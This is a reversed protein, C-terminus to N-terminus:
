VDWDENVMKHLRELRKQLEYHNELLKAALEAPHPLKEMDARSPNKATLDYERKVLEKADEFWSKETSEPQSAKGKRYAKMQQWIQRAEAFHDDSISNVKSFKKLNDPLAIEHYLVEKHQESREFFFCHLKLM